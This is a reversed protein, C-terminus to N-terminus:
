VYFRMHIRTNLKDSVPEGGQIHEAVIRPVDKAKVQWYWTEDETVRVSPGTSCQGLCGCERVVVGDLDAAQFAELTEASGNEQCSRHQCVYITPTDPTERAPDSM